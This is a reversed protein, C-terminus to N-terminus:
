KSEENIAKEVLNNLWDHMSIKNKVVHEFAKRKTEPAVGELEGMYRTRYTGGRVGPIEFDFNASPEGVGVEFTILYFTGGIVWECKVKRAEVPLDEFPVDVAFMPNTKILIKYFETNRHWNPVNEDGFVIKGGAKTVRVMEKMAKKKDSFEGMAGFSYTADFYNDPYPLYGANSLCFSKKIPFDKLKDYCRGIMDESIDQVHLESNEGTLAEALLVSDRGTGCAIELVKNNANLELNDIFSKRVTDEDESHTFFTFHLTEDYQEARGEYFNKSEADLFHLDKPYILNPINDTVNYEVKNENIYGNEAKTLKGKNEPDVFVDVIM